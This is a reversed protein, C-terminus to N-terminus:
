EQSILQDNVVVTLTSESYIPVTFDDLEIEENYPYTKFEWRDGVSFTGWIKFQIAGNSATYLTSAGETAGYTIEGDYVENSGEDTRHVLATTSSTISIRWSSKVTSGALVEPNWNNELSNSGTLIRPYPVTSLLNLTLYDVRDLNDILAIIDSKRIQRNISSGNFGYAEELATKIDAETQTTSRRFKATVDLDLVLKTNGTSRANIVTTIIRRDELYDEVATLLAGSATGGESPAVYIDIEKTQPNYDVAAKGVGGVLLALDRHDQATVARDLTRLSLPAKARIEEIGQEDMGGAAALPNTVQFEDIEAWGTPDPETAVDFTTLTEAEVNGAVGKSQYYSAYVTTAPDPIRGNVDDGFKVWAEKAENVEVICDRDTPGSFAFTDRLTFGFAGIEIELSGDMYDDNLQFVQDAASTTTGINEDDVRVMQRAPVVVSSTGLFITAKGLTIFEVGDADKVIIGADLTYDATTLNVPDGSSDVATILLDVTASVKAKIRYDILRTIKVLSSYRRATTIFSERAVNDIYYNLQEVLGAFSSIIIVYINSESYDTIETVLTKMRNILSAKISKYSRDLYSVWSNELAM